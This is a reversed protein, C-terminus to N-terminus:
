MRDLKLSKIVDSNLALHGVVTYPEQVQSIPFAGCVVQEAYSIGFAPFVLGPCDCLTVKESVNYTQFYKTAGPTISTRTIKKGVLRNMVSSKGVNPSGVIGLTVHELDGIIQKTSELNARDLGLCEEWDDVESVPLAHLLDAPGLKCEFEIEKFKKMSMNKDRTGM